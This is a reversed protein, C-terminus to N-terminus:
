ASLTMLCDSANVIDVGKFYEPNALHRVLQTAKADPWHTKFSAFARSPKPDSWKCEFMHTLQNGKSLAFDLETGDKTRLYHLEVDKGLADQQHHCHKLLSLAVMNEFRLGMLSAADKDSLDTVDAAGVLGTDFFYVKPSQQLSRAINHHFPQVLFVIFLAQLIDLYRKITPQSVHLDRALSALSLPSGVRQRLLDLLVRMTGLEHIRSFELVDERVLGNVYQTRWRDAEIESAALYPEPFGGRTLLRQMAAEAMASQGFPAAADLMDGSECCERVSLPHLRWSFFRGALSDGAQRFTDMRASGTVLIQQGDPRGDVVGKLWNKWNPMKHLEDLVLLRADPPWSQREIQVRDRATDHNLYSGLGPTCGRLLMRSLTTKGVQRPGTVFVMKRQLDRAILADLYRIM